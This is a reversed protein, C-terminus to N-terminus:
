MEASLSTSSAQGWLVRTGSPSEEIRWPVGAQDWEEADVSTQFHRPGRERADSAGVASPLTATLGIMLTALALTFSRLRRRSMGM